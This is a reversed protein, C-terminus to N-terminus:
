CTTCPPTAPPQSALWTAYDNDFRRDWDRMQAKAVPSFETVSGAVPSWWIRTWLAGNISVEIAAGYDCDYVTNGQLDYSRTYQTPCYNPASSPRSSTTNGAGASPCSPLPRGRALDRLVERVPDVCQPISRWSPAALCLMVLCGDAARASISSLSGLVTIAVARQLLSCLGRAEEPRSRRPLKLASSTRTKM